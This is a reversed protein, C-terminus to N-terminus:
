ANAKFVIKHVSFVKDTDFELEKEEGEDPNYQFLRLVKSSQSTFRKIYSEVPADDGNEILQAIVDDGSRVPLHPNVWVTEGAFYRPEMSTGFVMVAYAGEVGELMPPCFVRGVETGNLIFRGNPGGATQGLLPVTQGQPFEQYRPPFSANPKTKVVSASPEHDGNDNEGTLLWSVTTDLVPALATITRTSVGARGKQQVARQMNRIADKSLGAKLSAAQASLGVAKLRQEVRELVDDLMATFHGNSSNKSLPLFVTSM